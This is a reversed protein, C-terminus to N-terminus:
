AVHATVPDFAHRRRHEHLSSGCLVVRRHIGARVAEARLVHRPERLQWVVRVILPPQMIDFNLGFSLFSSGCCVAARGGRRTHPKPLSCHTANLCPTAVSPRFSAADTQCLRRWYAEQAASRRPLLSPQRRRRRPRREIAGAAAAAGRLRAARPLVTRARPAARTVCSQCILKVNNRESQECHQCAVGSARPRRPRRAATRARAAARQRAPPAAGAPAAGRLVRTYASCNVTAQHLRFRGRGDRHVRKRRLRSVAGPHVLRSLGLVRLRADCRHRRRLPFARALSWVTCFGAASGGHRLTM